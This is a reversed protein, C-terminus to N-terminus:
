RMWVTLSGSLTIVVLAGSRVQVDPAATATRASAARTRVVGGIDASSPNRDVVKVIGIQQAPAATSDRFSIPVSTVNSRLDYDQGRIFASRASLAYAGDVQGPRNVPVLQTILLYITSGVPIVVRGRVDVVDRNVILAVTEGAHNAGSMVDASWTANIRTGATLTLSGPAPWDDRLLASGARPDTGRKDGDSRLALDTQETACAASAALMVQAVAAVVKRNM